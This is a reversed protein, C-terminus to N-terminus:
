SIKQHGENELNLKARMRTMRERCSPGWEDIAIEVGMKTDHQPRIADIANTIGSKMHMDYLASAVSKMIVPSRM